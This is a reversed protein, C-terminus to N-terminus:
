SVDIIGVCLPSWPSTITEVGNRRATARGDASHAIASRNPSRRSHIRLPKARQAIARETYAAADDYRFAREEGDGTVVTMWEPPVGQIRELHRGYEAMQLLAPVRMRRALKTDAVDYSYDGLDSPREVRILFDAHGRSGDHFFTAQYIVQRRTADRSETARVREQLDDQDSIKEVSLGSAELRELYNAEHELGLRFILELAEDEIQPKALDGHVLSLDLTTIHPCALHKTLDTPSLVLGAGDKHMAPDARRASVNITCRAPPTPSHAVPGGPVEHM